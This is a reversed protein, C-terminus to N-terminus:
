FRVLINGHRFKQYIIDILINLLSVFNYLRVWQM